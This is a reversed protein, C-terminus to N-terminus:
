QPVGSHLAIFSFYVEKSPVNVLVNKLTGWDLLAAMPRSVLSAITLPEGRKVGIRKLFLCM